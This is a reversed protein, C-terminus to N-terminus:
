RPHPVLIHTNHLVHFGLGTDQALSFSISQMWLSACPDQTSLATSSHKATRVASTVGTQLLPCAKRNVLRQNIFRSVHRKKKSQGCAARITSRPIELCFRMHEPHYAWLSCPSDLQGAARPVKTARGPISSTDGTNSPLNKVM